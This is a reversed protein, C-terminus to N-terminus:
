RVSARSRVRARHAGELRCAEADRLELRGARRVNRRTAILDDPAHKGRGQSLGEGRGRLRVAGVLATHRQPEARRSGIIRRQKGGREQVAATAADRDALVDVLHESAPVRLDPALQAAREGRTARDEALKKGIPTDKLSM